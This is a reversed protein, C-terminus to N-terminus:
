RDYQFRNAANARHAACLIVNRLYTNGICLLIFGELERDRRMHLKYKIKINIIKEFEISAYINSHVHIVYITHSVQAFYIYIGIGCIILRV